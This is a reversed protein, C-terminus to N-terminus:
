RIVTNPGIITGACAQAGDNDNCCITIGNCNVSSGILGVCTYGDSQSPSCCYPSSNAGCTIQQVVSTPKSPPPPPPPQHGGPVAVVGAVAVALITFIQTLQM